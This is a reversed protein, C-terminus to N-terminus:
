EKVASDGIPQYFNPQLHEKLVRNGLDSHMHMMDTSPTEEPLLVCAVVERGAAVRARGVDGCNVRGNWAFPCVSSHHIHM